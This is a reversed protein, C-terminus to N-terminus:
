AIGGCSHHLSEATANNRKCLKPSTSSLVDCNLMLVDINFGAPLSDNRILDGASPSL